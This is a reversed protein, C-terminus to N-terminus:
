QFIFGRNFNLTDPRLAACTGDETGKTDGFYLTDASLYYIDYDDNDFSAGSSTSIHSVFETAQLGSTTTIVVDSLAFTGTATPNPYQSFTISCNSDIYNKIDSHFTNGRFTVTVVDYVVVPGNDDALGCPKYWEGEFVTATGNTPTLAATPISDGGGCATAVLALAITAASKGLLKIIRYNNMEIERYDTLKAQKSTFVSWPKNPNCNKTFITLIFIIKTFDILYSRIL